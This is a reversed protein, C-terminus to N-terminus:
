DDYFVGYRKVQRKLAAEKIKIEKEARKLDRKLREDRQQEEQQQEADRLFDSTQKKVSGKLSSSLGAASKRTSGASSPRSAASKPRQPAQYANMDDRNGIGEKNKGFRMGDVFFNDDSSFNLKDTVISDEQQKRSRSSSSPHPNSTLNSTRSRQSKSTFNNSADSVGPQDSLRVDFDFTTTTFKPLTPEDSDKEKTQTEKQQRQSQTPALSRRMWEYKPIPSTMEGSDPSPPDLLNFTTLPRYLPRSTTQHISVSSIPKPNNPNEIIRLDKIMEERVDFDPSQSEDGGNVEEPLYDDGGSSNGGVKKAVSVSGKGSFRRSEGVTKTQTPHTPKDFPLPRKYFLPPEESKNPKLNMRSSASVINENIVQTSKKSVKGITKKGKKSDNAETESTAVPLFTLAELPLADVVEMSQPGCM